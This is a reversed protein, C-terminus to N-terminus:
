DKCVENWRVAFLNNFYELRAALICKHASIEAGSKSKIVVDQLNKLVSRDFKIVEPADKKKTKVQICGNMYTYNDLKKHLTKIGFRKASEQLLRVPDRVDTEKNKSKSKPQKKNYFEYATLNDDAVIFEESYGNSKQKKETTDCINQIERPCQGPSLIDCTGTYIYRLIQKFIVPHINTLEITTEPASSEILSDLAQSKLAIIYRHVPFIHGSVKFIVDHIADMESSENLLTLM